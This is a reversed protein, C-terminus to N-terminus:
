SAAAAPVADPTQVQFGQKFEEVTQKLTAETETPSTAADHPDDRAGHARGALYTRLGENFRAVEEVPLDDVYGNTAAWIVAVEEEM